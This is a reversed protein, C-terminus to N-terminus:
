PKPPVMATGPPPKFNKLTILPPRFAGKPFEVYLNGMLFLQSAKLRQDLFQRWTDKYEAAAEPTSAHCLPQRTRKKRKEPRGRPNLKALKAPGAAKRGAPERKARYEQEIARVERRFRTAYQPKSLGEWRPIKSYEVTVTKKFDSQPRKGNKGGAKNWATRDIYEFREYLDGNAIAHYTGFGKNHAARELLGDKVMNTAGYLFQQETSTDDVCEDTRNRGAWITGCGRRDLLINVEKTLLSFFLQDFDSMNGEQGEYPARGRHLHNVNPDVWFIKVPYHALARGLCAGVINRLEPTPRLFFMDDICKKVESYVTDSKWWRPKDPM